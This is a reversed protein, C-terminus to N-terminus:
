CPFTVNWLWKRTSIFPIHASELEQQACMVSYRCRSQFFTVSTTVDSARARPKFSTLLSVSNLVFPGEMNILIYQLRQIITTHDYSIFNYSSLIGTRWWWWLWNYVFVHKSHTFHYLAMHFPNLVSHKFLCLVPFSSSHVLWASCLRCYLKRSCYIHLECEALCCATAWGHVSFHCCLFQTVVNSRNFNSCGNECQKLVVSFNVAWNASSCFYLNFTVVVNQLVM